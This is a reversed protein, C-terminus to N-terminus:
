WCFFAAALVIVCRESSSKFLDLYFLVFFCFFLFSKWHKLVLPTPPHPPQPASHELKVNLLTHFSSAASRPSIPQMLTAEARRRSYVLRQQYPADEGQCGM